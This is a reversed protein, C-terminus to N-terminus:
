RVIEHRDIKFQYIQISSYFIMAIGAHVQLGPQATDEEATNSLDQQQVPLDNQLYQEVRHFARDLPFV